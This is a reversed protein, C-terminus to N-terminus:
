VKAFVDDISPATVARVLWRDLTAHDTEAFIRSKVDGPVDFARARLVMLLGEIKGEVKGEIKGEVKGERRTEELTWQYVRLSDARDRAIRQAEPDQSLEELAVKAAEMIPDEEALAQLEADTEAVLFRGWRWVAAEATSLEKPPAALHLYRLQLLHIALQDSFLASTRRERLEFVSHYQELEPFIPEVMWVIVITPTLHEYGQGKKLRTAHEKAAYFVLRNALAPEVRVQIEVGVRKGSALRVRVDLIVRREETNEGPIEPNILTLESIGEELVAELMRQLLQIRRTFFLKFVADLKPDLLEM